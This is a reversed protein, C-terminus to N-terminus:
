ATQKKSMLLRSVEAPADPSFVDIEAADSYDLDFDLTKKFIGAIPQGGCLVYANNGASDYGDHERVCNFRSALSATEAISWYFIQTEYISGDASGDIIDDLDDRAQIKKFMQGGITKLWPDDDQIDEEQGLLAMALEYFSGRGAMGCRPIIHHDLLLQIHDSDALDLVELKSPNLTLAFIGGDGYEGAQDFDETMWLPNKFSPMKFQKAPSKKKFFGHWLVYPQEYNNNIM